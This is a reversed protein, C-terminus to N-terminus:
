LSRQPPGTYSLSLSLAVALSLSLAVISVCRVRSEHWRRQSAVAGSACIGLLTRTVDRSSRRPVACKTYRSLSTDMGMSFSIRSAPGRLLGPVRKIFDTAKWLPTLTCSMLSASKLPSSRRATTRMPASLLTRSSTKGAARLSACARASTGATTGCGGWALRTPKSSSTNLPTPMRSTATSRNPRYTLQLIARGAPDVNGNRHWLWHQPCAPGQNADWRPPSPCNRQSPLVNYRWQLESFVFSASIPREWEMMVGCGDPITVMAVEDDPAGDPNTFLIRSKLYEVNHQSTILGVTKLWFLKSLDEQTDM